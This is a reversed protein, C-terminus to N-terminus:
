SLTELKAYAVVLWKAGGSAPFDIRARAHYGAGEVELVVGDGFRAHRVRQRPRLGTPTTDIRPIPPPIKKEPRKARARVDRTLEEPIEDVFRSPSPYNERGYWARREAHSVYLQRRARTIGVYALRREEELQRTEAISRSHPFLGEEMGVLFVLPFELGKAMHLTMLQVCDEGAAGQGM